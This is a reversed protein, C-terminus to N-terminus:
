EVPAVENDTLKIKLEREVHRRIAREIERNPSRDNDKAVQQVLEYLVTPLYLSRRTMPTDPRHIGM